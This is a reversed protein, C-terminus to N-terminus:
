YSLTTISADSGVPTPTPDSCDSARDSRVNKNANIQTSQRIIRRKTEAKKGHVETPYYDGQDAGYGKRKRAADPTEKPAEMPGASLVPHPRSPPRRRPPRQVTPPAKACSPKWNRKSSTSNIWRVQTVGPKAKAAAAKSGKHRSLDYNDNPDKARGFGASVLLQVITPWILRHRGFGGLTYAPYAGRPTEIWNFKYAFTEARPYKAKDLKAWRPM